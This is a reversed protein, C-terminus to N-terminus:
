VELSNKRSVLENSRKNDLVYRIFTKRTSKKDKSTFIGAWKEDWERFEPDELRIQNSKPLNWMPIKPNLHHELHLNDYHVGMILMEFWNGHRNRTHYLASKVNKSVLPYHEAMEIFWGLIMASSFLPVLWFILLLHSIKFWIALSLVGIWFIFFMMRDVQQSVIKNNNKDPVKFWIRDKFVYAFYTFIRGGLLPKVMYEIIFDRKNNCSYVGLDLHQKYDPDLDPHGLHGHHNTVHSYCYTVYQQGVWYGSLWTSALFNIVKSKALTNHSGAHMLNALGRQRTGILLWALPYLWMSVKLCFLVSAAIIFYDKIIYTVWHWNDTKSIKRLCVKIDNEEM